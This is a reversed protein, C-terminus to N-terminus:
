AEADELSADSEPVGDTGETDETQADDGPDDSVDEVPITGTHTQGDVIVAADLSPVLTLAALVFTTVASAAAAALITRWDFDTLLVGGVAAGAVYQGFQRVARQTAVAWWPGDDTAPLGALMFAAAVVVILALKLASPMWMGAPDAILAPALPVLAALATRLVAWGVMQWFALTFLRSM